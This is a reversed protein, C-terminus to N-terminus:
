ASSKAVAKHILASVGRIVLEPIEHGGRFPLFEAQTGQLHAHLKEADQFALIADERGHSQFIPVSALKPLLPQQRAAALLTSSMLAIGDPPTQLRLAVELALMAGQSFGGLVLPSAGRVSEIWAAVQTSAQDMGEPVENPDRAEGRAMRRMREELDIFWWARADGGFMPGLDVPGAPFAFRTGEPARLVRHLTVLDTGPAGFGHLLVVLPREGGGRNDTGGAWVVDLLKSMLIHAYRSVGTELWIAM